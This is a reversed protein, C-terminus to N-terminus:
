PLSLISPLFFSKKREEESARSLTNVNKQRSFGRFGSKPNKSLCSAPYFIPLMPSHEINVNRNVNWMNRQQTCSLMESENWYELTFFYIKYTNNIVSLNFIPFILISDVCNHTGFQFFVVFM